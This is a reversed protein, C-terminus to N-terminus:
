HPDGMSQFFGLEVKSSESEMYVIRVDVGKDGVVVVVAAVMASVVAVIVM